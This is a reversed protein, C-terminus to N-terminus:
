LYSLTTFIHPKIINYSGLLAASNGVALGPRYGIVRSLESRTVNEYRYRSPIEVSMGRTLFHELFARRRYDLAVESKRLLYDNRVAAYIVANESRPIVALRRPPQLKDGDRSCVSFGGGCAHDLLKHLSHTVAAPIYSRRPVVDASLGVFRM